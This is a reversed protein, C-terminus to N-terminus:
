FRSLTAVKSYSKKKQSKFLHSPEAGITSIQNDDNQLQHSPTASIACVLYFQRFRKINSLSFGKGFKLSLDKSLRELLGAGYEAKANSDQEFEVIHQGTKWYTQVLAINAANFARVKGNNYTESINNLLHNYIQVGM